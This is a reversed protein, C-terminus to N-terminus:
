AKTKYQGIFFLILGIPMFLSFYFMLNSYEPILDLRAWTLFGNGFLVIETLLIGIMFLYLGNKAMKNVQYGKNHIHWGIFFLSFMGLFILHLYGIVFYNKLKYGINAILPTASLLQIILKVGFIMFALRYLQTVIKSLKPKWKAFAKKIFPYFRIFAIIQILASVFSIVYIILHPKIWLASLAYTPIVAFNIWYYFDLSAKQPLDVGDDELQRFLIAIMSMVFFGNYTFHLYFFIGLFYPVSHIMKLAMIPGMGWPGISALVLYFLSAKAFKVAPTSPQMKLEKNLKYAYFYSVILFLTSFVIPVIHYGQTLFGVGFGLICIQTLWFLRNYEKQKTSFKMLLGLILANFGWGLFAIHSHAHLIYKYNLGLPYVFLMRITLGLVAVIVLWGFTILLYTRNKKDM